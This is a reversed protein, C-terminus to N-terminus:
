VEQTEESEVMSKWYKCSNRVGCINGCFFSNENTNNPKWTEDDKISAVMDKFWELSKQIDESNVEKSIIENDRIFWIRIEDIDIGKGIKLAYCYLNMQHMYEEIQKQKAKKPIKLKATKYDFLIVKGTEKDKLVLDPRATAKINDALDFLITSETSIVEFNERPFEFNDFFRLGAKFYSESLDVFKNYPYEVTVYQNYYDVYADELDWIEKKGQFYDELVKHIANGFQAFANDVQPKRDIYSLKYAYNCTKYSNVASFSYVINDLIFSWSSM